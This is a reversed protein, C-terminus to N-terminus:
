SPPKVRNAGRYVCGRLSEPRFGASLTQQRRNASLACATRVPLSDAHVEDTV